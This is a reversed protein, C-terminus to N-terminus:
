TTENINEIPDSPIKEADDQIHSAKPILVLELSSKEHSDEDRGVAKNLRCRFCRRGLEECRACRKPPNTCSSVPEQDYLNIEVEDNVDGFLEAHLSDM